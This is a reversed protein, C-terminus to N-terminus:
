ASDLQLLSPLELLSEIRADAESAEPRTAHLYGWPGRRIFIAFMGAAKAPLVDNDLRDGVYAIEPAPMGAEASIRAFFEPSPKEVGWRTSSAVVDVPLGMAELAEAAGEPQNGAVGVLYGERALRELCPLADPYLDSSGFALPYSPREVGVLDWIQRHDAGREILAGLVAFLVLPSIGAREAERTWVRTEDVLTEGADFFVARV